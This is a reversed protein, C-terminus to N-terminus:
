PCFLKLFTTRISIYIHSMCHGHLSVGLPNLTRIKTTLPGTIYCTGDQKRVMDPDLIKKKIHNDNKMSLNVETEREREREKKKKKQATCISNYLPTM